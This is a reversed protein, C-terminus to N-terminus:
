AARGSKKKPANKTPTSVRAAARRPGNGQLSKKLAAMLDIVKGDDDNAAKSPKVPKGKKKEEILARLAEEYRDVFEAPDFDGSQQDIIKEAVALMQSDPKPLDLGPLEAVDRVAKALAANDEGTSSRKQEGGV